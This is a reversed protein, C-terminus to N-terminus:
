QGAVLSELRWFIRPPLHMVKLMYRRKTRCIAVVRPLVTFSRWGDRQVDVGFRKMMALTIEIYPKSILEGVVEVKVTRNLLPMAM